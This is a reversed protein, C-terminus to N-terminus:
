RGGGPNLTARTKPSKRTKATAKRTKVRGASISAKAGGSYAKKTKKKKAM